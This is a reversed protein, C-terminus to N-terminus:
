PKDELKDRLAKWDAFCNGCLGGSGLHPQECVSCESCDEPLYASRGGRSSAMQLRMYERREQKTLRNWRLATM